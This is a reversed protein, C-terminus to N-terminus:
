VGFLQKRQTEAGKWAWDDTDIPIVKALRAPDDDLALFANTRRVIAKIEDLCDDIDGDMLVAHKKTSVYVFHVEYGPFAKAYIARQRQHARSMESPIRHTTKLDVIVKREPYVFDVYGIVPIVTDDDVRCKLEVKHQGGEAPFDPTGYETLADIAEHIMPVISEREKAARPDTLPVHEDFKELAAAIAADLDQGHATYAASADEVVIGRWMAASSLFTHGLLKEAFWASFSMAMRNVQSPSVHTLGHKEFNNM